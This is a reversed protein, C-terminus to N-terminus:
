IDTHVTWIPLDSTRSNRKVSTCSACQTNQSLALQEVCRINEVTCLAVVAPNATQQGM